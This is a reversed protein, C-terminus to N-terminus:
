CNMGNGENNVEWSQFKCELRFVALSSVLQEVALREMSTTRDLLRELKRFLEMPRAVHRLYSSLYAPFSQSIKRGVTWIVFLVFSKLQSLLFDAPYSSLSSVKRITNGARVSFNEWCRPATEREAFLFYPKTTSQFNCDDSLFLILQGVNFRGWESVSARCSALSSDTKRPPCATYTQKARNNAVKIRFMRYITDTLLFAPSLYNTNSTEHMRIM